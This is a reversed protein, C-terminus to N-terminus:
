CHLLINLGVVLTQFCKKQQLNSEAILSYTIQYANSEKAYRHIIYRSFVWRNLVQLVHESTAFDNGLINISYDGHNGLKKLLAIGCNM